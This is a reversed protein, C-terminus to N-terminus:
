VPPGACLPYGMSRSWRRLAPTHAPTSVHVSIPSLGAAKALEATKPVGGGFLEVERFGIDAIAKLTGAQDKGLLDRVSYLQVGLMEPAKAAIETTMFAGVGGVAALRMVERRTMEGM